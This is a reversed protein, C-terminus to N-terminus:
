QFLSVPSFGDTPAKGDCCGLASGALSPYLPRQIEAGVQFVDTILVSALVEAVAGTRFIRGEQLAIVQDCFPAALNLDHIAAIVTRGYDHVLSRLVHMIETSHHIDLNATAEDPVLV